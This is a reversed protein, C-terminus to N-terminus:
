QLKSVQKELVRHEAHEGQRVLEYTDHYHMLDVRDHIKKSGRLSGFWPRIRSESVVTHIMLIQIEKYYENVSETGQV